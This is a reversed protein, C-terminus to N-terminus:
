ITLYVWHGFPHSPPTKHTSVRLHGKYYQAGAIILPRTISDCGTILGGGVVVAAVNVGYNVAAHVNMRRERHSGPEIIIGWISRLWGVWCHSINNRNRPCIIISAIICGMTTHLSSSPGEQFVNTIIIIIIVTFLIAVVFLEGRETWQVTSRLVVASQM